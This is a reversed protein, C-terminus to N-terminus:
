RLQLARDILPKLDEHRNESGGVLQGINMGARDIVIHTPFAEVGYLDAIESAKPAITYTFPTKKLFEKLDKEDDLAFALFVVDKKAYEQVLTNLGPIEARCPPCGIFWFNLVVAKGKLKALDYKKGDLAKVAFPLSPKKRLAAISDTKQKLLAEFGADSGNLSKYVALASDKASAAGYAFATIFATQAALPAGNAAWLAGEKTLFEAQMEAESALSYAAKVAALAQGSKGAIRFIEGAQSFADSLSSVSYGFRARTEPNMLVDVMRQAIVVASDPLPLSRKALSLYAYYADPNDPTSAFWHAFVPKVASLMLTTDAFNSEVMARALGSTPYRVAIDRILARIEGVASDTRQRISFRMLQRETYPSLPYDRAMTRVIERLDSKNDLRSLGTALAHYYAPATAADPTEKRLVAIDERVVEQLATEPMKKKYQLYDWKSPFINYNKPYLAREKDLATSDDWMMSLLAGQAATGDPRLATFDDGARLTNEATTISAFGNAVSDPLRFQAILATGKAMMPVTTDQSKGNTMTLYLRAYASSRVSLTAKTARTNYVVNLTDGWRVVSPSCSVIKTDTQAVLTACGLSILAKLLISFLINQHVNM